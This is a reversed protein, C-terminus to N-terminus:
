KTDVEQKKITVKHIWFPLSMLLSMIAAIVTGLLRYQNGTIDSENWMFAGITGGTFIGTVILMVVLKITYEGDILTKLNM